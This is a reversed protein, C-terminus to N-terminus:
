LGPVMKTSTQDFNLVMSLTINHDKILKEINDLYISKINLIMLLRAAQVHLKASLMGM